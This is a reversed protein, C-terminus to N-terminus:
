KKDSDDLKIIKDIIINNKNKITNEKKYIIMLSVLLIILLFPLIWEIAYVKYDLIVKSIGVTNTGPNIYKVNNSLNLAMILIMSIPAIFAIKLKNKVISVIAIISMVVVLIISVDSILAPNEFSLTLLGKFLNQPGGIMNEVDYIYAMGIWFVDVFYALILWVATGGIFSYKLVEQNIKIKSTLKKLDFVKMKEVNNDM